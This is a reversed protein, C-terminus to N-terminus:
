YDEVECISQMGQDDIVKVIMPSYTKGDYPPIQISDMIKIVKM